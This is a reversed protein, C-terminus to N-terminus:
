EQNSMGSNMLRKSAVQSVLPLTLDLLGPGVEM